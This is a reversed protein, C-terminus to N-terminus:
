RFDAQDRRCHPCVVPGSPMAGKLRGPIAEEPVFWKRCNPNACQVQQIASHTADCNPCDITFLGMMAAPGRGMAEPPPLDKGKIVFEAECDFCKFHFDRDPDSRSITEDDTWIGYITLGVSAVVVVVLAAAFLHEPVRWGGGPAALHKKGGEETM